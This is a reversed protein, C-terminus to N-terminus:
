SPLMLMDGALPFFLQEGPILSSSWFTRVNHCQSRKACHKGTGPYLQQGVTGRQGMSCSGGNSSEQCLLPLVCAQQRGPVAQCDKMVAKGHSYVHAPPQWAGPPAKLTMGDAGTTLLLNHQRLQVGVGAKQMEGATLLPRRLGLMELQAAERGM